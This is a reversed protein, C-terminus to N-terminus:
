SPVPMSIPQVGLFEVAQFLFNSAAAQGSQDAPGPILGYATLALAKLAPWAARILAIGADDYGLKTLSADDFGRQADALMDQIASITALSNCLGLVANGMMRDLDIKTEPLGVDTAM